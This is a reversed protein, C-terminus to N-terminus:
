RSTAKLYAEVDKMSRGSRQFRKLAERTDQRQDGKADSAGPKLTKGPVNALKKSVDGATKNQQSVAHELMLLRRVMLVTRADTIGAADDPSFGFQSLYQGALHAFQQRAQPSKLEPAHQVMVQEQQKLQEAMQMQQLRQQERSVSQGQEAIHHLAQQRQEHLTRQRLYEGPNEQALELPPPEGVMAQAFQVLTNQAAQVQQISESAQAYTQHVVQREQALEQTKRTYDSHRLFSDKLAKPVRYTKGEHEVEESDADDDLSQKAQRKQKPEDDEDDEDDETTVDDSDDEDDGDEEDDSEDKAKAEKKAPKEKPEPKEKQVKRPDTDEDESPDEDDSDDRAEPKDAKAAKREAKRAKDRRDLEAVAAAVTDYTGSDESDPASHELAQETTM